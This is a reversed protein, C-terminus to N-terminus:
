DIHLHRKIDICNIVFNICGIRSHRCSDIQDVFVSAHNEIMSDTGNREMRISKFIGYLIIQCASLILNFLHYNQFYM